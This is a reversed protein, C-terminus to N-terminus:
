ACGYICAKRAVFSHLLCEDFRRPKSVVRIQTCTYVHFSGARRTMSATACRLSERGAAKAESYRETHSLLQPSATELAYMGDEKYQVPSLRSPRRRASTRVSPAARGAGTCDVSSRQVLVCISLAWHLEAIKVQPTSKSRFTRAVAVFVNAAHWCAAIPAKSVLFATHVYICYLLAATLPIGRRSTSLFDRSNRGHSLGRDFSPGHRLQTSIVEILGNRCARLRGGMMCEQICHHRVLM